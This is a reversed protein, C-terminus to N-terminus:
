PSPKPWRKRQRTVTILYHAGFSAIFQRTHVPHAHVELHCHLRLISAKLRSHRQERRKCPAAIPRVVTFTVIRAVRRLTTIPAAFKHRMLPPISRTLQLM